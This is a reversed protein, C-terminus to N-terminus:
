NPSRLQRSGYSLAPGPVRAAEAEALLLAAVAVVAAAV